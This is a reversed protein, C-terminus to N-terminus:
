NTYSKIISKWFSKQIPHKSIEYNPSMANSSNSSMDDQSNKHNGSSLTFTSPSALSVRNHENTKVHVSSINDVGLSSVALTTTLRLIENPNNSVTELTLHVFLSVNHQVLDIDIVIQRKWNLPFLENPIKFKSITGVISSKRERRKSYMDKGMSIGRQHNYHRNVSSRVTVGRNNVDTAKNLGNLTAEMLLPLMNANSHHSIHPAMDDLVTNVLIIEDQNLILLYRQAEGRSTINYVLIYNESYISADKTENGLTSDRGVQIGGITYQNRDDILIHHRQRKHPAQGTTVETTNNSGPLTKQDGDAGTSNERDFEGLVGWQGGTQRDEMLEVTSNVSGTSNAPLSAVSSGLVPDHAQSTVNITDGFGVKRTSNIPDVVDELRTDNDSGLETSNADVINLLVHKETQGADKPPFTQTQPPEVERSHKELLQDRRTGHTLSELNASITANATFNGTSMNASKIESKPVEEEEKKKEEEKKEVKNKEKNGVDKAEQTIYDRKYINTSEAHKGEDRWSNRLSKSPTTNFPHVENTSVSDNDVNTSNIKAAFHDLDGLLLETKVNLVIDSQLDEKLMLTNGSCSDGIRDIECVDNEQKESDEIETQERTLIEYNELRVSEYLRVYSLAILAIIFPFLRNLGVIRQRM